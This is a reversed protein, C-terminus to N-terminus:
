TTVCRQWVYATVYLKAVVLTTSLGMEFVLM